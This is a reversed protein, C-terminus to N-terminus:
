ETVSLSRRDREKMWEHIWEIMYWVVLSDRCFSVDARDLGGCWMDFDMLYSM